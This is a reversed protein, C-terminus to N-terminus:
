INTSMFFVCFVFHFYCRRRRKNEKQNKQSPYILKTTNDHLWPAIQQECLKQEHIREQTYLTAQLQRIENSESNNESDDTSLMPFIYEINETNYTHSCIFCTSFINKFERNVSQM